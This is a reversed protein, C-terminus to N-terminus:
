WEDVNKVNTESSKVAKGDKRSREGGNRGVRKIM